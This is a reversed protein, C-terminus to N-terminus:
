STWLADAGTRDYEAVIAKLADPDSLRDDGDITAVISDHRAFRWITEIINKLAYKRQETRIVTIRKDGKAVREAVEKTKDTSCDDVVVARWDQHTQELISLLCAGIYAEANRCAIPIFFQM